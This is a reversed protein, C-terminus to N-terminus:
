IFLSKNFNIPYLFINFFLFSSSPKFKHFIISLFVYLFLTTLLSFISNNKNFFTGIYKKNDNKPYAEYLSSNNM